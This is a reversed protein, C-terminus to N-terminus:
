RQGQLTKLAAEAVEVAKVCLTEMPLPKNSAVQGFQVALMQDDAVDVDIFCRNNGSGLGLQQEEQIAPFGGVTIIRRTSSDQIQELYEALGVRTSPIILAGYEETSSRYSCDREDKLPGSTGRGGIPPRDFAFVARQQETLISCPDVGDLSLSRPRSPISSGASTTTSVEASSPTARPTGAESNSCATTGAVVILAALLMQGRM